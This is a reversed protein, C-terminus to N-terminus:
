KRYYISSEYDIEADELWEECCDCFTYDIEEIKYGKMKELNKTEDAVECHIFDLHYIGTSRDVLFTECEFAYQKRYQNSFFIAAIGMAILIIGWAITIKYGKPEKDPFYYYHPNCLNNELEVDIGKDLLVILGLIYVMFIVSTGTTMNLLNRVFSWHVFLSVVWLVVLVCTAIPIIAHAMEKIANYTNRGIIDKLFSRSDVM